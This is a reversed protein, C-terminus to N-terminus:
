FLDGATKKIKKHHVLLPSKPANVSDHAHQHSSHEGHLCCSRATRQAQNKGTQNRSRRHGDQAKRADQDSPVVYSQQTSIVVIIIMILFFFRDKAPSVSSPFPGIITNHMCVLLMCTTEMMDEDFSFSYM